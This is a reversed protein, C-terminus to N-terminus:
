RNKLREMVAVIEPDQMIKDFEEQPDYWEGTVKDQVLMKTEQQLSCLIDDNGGPWVNGLM